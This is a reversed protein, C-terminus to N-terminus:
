MTRLARQQFSPEPSRASSRPPGGAAEPCQPWGMGNKAMWYGTTVPPVCEQLLQWPPAGPSTCLVVSGGLQDAKALSVTTAGLVLALSLARLM